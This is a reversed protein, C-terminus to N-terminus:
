WLGPVLRYRVRHAYALYGPLESQLMRDEFITRVVFLATVVTWPILGVASGLALPWGAFFLIAGVYGPHRVYGYPGTDIVEHGRDTQIRVTPEFFRNVSEAWTALAIGATLLLYGLVMGPLAVSSWHYRGADASTVFALVLMALTICAIWVKDWPKTTGPHRQLRAIIVEPNTRQIYFYSIVSVIMMFGLFSWGRLWTWGGGALLTLLCLLLTAVVSLVVMSRDARQTAM